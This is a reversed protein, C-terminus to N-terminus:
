MRGSIKLSRELKSRHNLKGSSVSSLRDLLWDVFMIAESCAM